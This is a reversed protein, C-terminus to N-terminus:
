RIGFTRACRCFKGKFLLHLQHCNSTFVGAQASSRYAMPTPSFEGIFQHFPPNDFANAGTMDFAQQRLGFDFRVFATVPKV